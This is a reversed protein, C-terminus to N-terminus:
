GAWDTSARVRLTPLLDLHRGPAEADPDQALRELLLEVAAVGLAEKPPAVATLPVDALGATEDDYAVIAVDEPVRLGRGRLHQLLILAETDPHVLVADVRGDSVADLMDAHMAVEDEAAPLAPATLGLAELGARYGASVFGATPTGERVLLAIRRRGTAALHRVAVSAGHVHDTCVRDLGALPSGPATRREVLVTPVSLRLLAEEEDSSPLGERWTPTLLLGSVGASLMSAIQTQDQDPQYDSIGLILRVGAAAAAAKAGRIVEAYYYAAAPVLLGLATDETRARRIQPYPSASTEPRSVSGHARHLLGAEALQEVDRRATVTSIGLTEALDAVRIRGQERVLRLIRQHRDDVSLRM